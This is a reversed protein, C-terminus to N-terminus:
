GYRKQFEGMFDILAEVGQLPMANYISARMGGMSQYGKLLRLGRTTSEQAFLLDLEKSPTHFIVNMHSRAQPAIKNTYFGRSNDIAEYLV